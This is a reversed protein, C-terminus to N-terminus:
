IDLYKDSKGFLIAKVRVKEGEFVDLAVGFIKGSKLGHVLDSTNIIEGRSTNVLIVNQKMKAISDANIMHHTQPLLPVHISIINSDTWLQDLSVYEANPISQIWDNDPYADYCLIKAVLGSLKQVCKRGILGTGIVGAVKDELLICQLGGITFDAQKTMEYSRQINKALAMISSVAYEAISAPSYSPVRGVRIGAEKCKDLPINDFGASCCLILKNGNAKLIDVQEAKIKKNVFLCIALYGEAEKLIEDPVGHFGHALHVGSYGEETFAQAITKNLHCRTDLIFLDKRM